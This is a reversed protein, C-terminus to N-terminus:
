LGFERLTLNLSDAYHVQGPIKPHFSQASPAPLGTDGATQDLVIGHITEPDGCVAQGAFEETPDSFRVVTRGATANVRAAAEGMHKTLLVAMENIFPAEATGIGPICSGERELLPPYGMLVIKANPARNRIETLAIVLSDEVQGPIIRNLEQRVTEDSDPLKADPCAYLGAKIICEQIVDAFRADNGGMSMTVLTTNEDLFGKDIQSVEGYQGLGSQGFANTPYPQGAPVTRDPLINETQAGSCAILNYDMTPDWRDARQGVTGGGDSLVGGRSWAYPSRHCANRSATDDGHNNSDRYYDSGGPASAGEGSSYSDGMAVVINRPKAALPQFAVADFAIDENEFAFDPEKTSDPDGDYTVSSLTVKPTGAVPFAGLSVWQNALTRQLVTRYKVVGNGLDIQYRAQQTHAGHDPMHVMVRTWQNLTRGLTWTGTVDMSGGRVGARRTHAYWFHGNYGAGLQHFDTKSPFEGSADAGFTLSFSGANTTAPACGPRVSPVSDPQDDVVLVGSPLGSVTCSPPYATGDEQYAYGPSFRLIENGCSYSCDSKWTSPKNYWCKLDFQGAGNKHACPGAPDGVVEPASPTNLQGPFCSNTDDCFQTVPPKVRERNQPGTTADGNWYAPRYGAVLVGPSELVEVPHGAWGMVKEPYPWRQPNRADEYTYELFPARNQQYKPNAPNNSWGVGWAGNNASAASQPNLGSNYAWVAYFWNELKLPDANNIRLGANYTQNWKDQLIRLGGAINTAFDLAVARQSQYPYAAVGGDERGALRMGDTVQAVGYGCDAAAFNIAFDDAPTDNYVELGYYNGILPNGTVGPVVYGPAQWLNSEQALVGLFIQAPVRGGGALPISPFLGQPSYAPMGLNKWNAPRTLNLSSTIAQDVAWEVQRPKPQMAQNRPDNRPVACTREAEIPDGPSGAVAASQLAPSPETGASSPSDQVSQQSSPEALLTSEVGTALSTVNIEVSAAQATPDPDFEPAPAVAAVSTVAALGQLSVQADKNVAARRVVPPLAAAPEFEGTLFVLGHSAASVGSAALPGSGLKQGQPLTAVPADAVQDPSARRATAQEGDRELFVVGGDADPTLEFATGTTAVLPTRTGDAALRVLAQDDAAVIGSATPVASTLQGPVEVPAASAGSRTDVSVVRTRGLESGGEQTFVADEGIGCGPSYFALSSRVDLKQVAGTALDVVATFGGRDFLADNNTFARPAYSVAVRDGSGTACANGIWRDTSFGDEALTAVTRWRFGDAADAVMVHLGEADGSTSWARDDSAALATGLDGTRRAKPVELASTTASTTAPLDVDPDVPVSAAAAPLSTLPAVAVTLALM